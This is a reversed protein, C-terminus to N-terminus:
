ANSGGQSKTKYLGVNTGNGRMRIELLDMKGEESLVKILLPTCFGGQCRGMGTRVRRKLGDLTYNALPRNLAMKIEGLSVEECRCIIKGFDPNEKILQDREKPTAKALRPIRKRYPNFDKNREIKISKGLEEVTIKAVEQAIAPAATLGPSQIGAVHFLNSVKPSLEVIFDEEYTPARLGSFYAIVDSEKIKPIVQKHKSLLNQISTKPTGLDDKDWVEIADPGILLNGDVTSIIAGGKTRSHRQSVKPFKSVITRVLNKVKSDLILDTGKRPHISFYKDDAFSAINDAYVGAANIVFKPRILGRNTKVGMIQQDKMEFGLCMTELSIRAGNMIANESFAIVAQYPSIIGANKLLIAGKAWSATEPERHIIEKKSIRKVGDIGLIRAKYNLYYSFIRDRKSSYIIYQGCRIFDFDLEESLQDYLKNGLLCYKAKLSDPKLDIGPHIMGDNAGSAGLAVDAEKEILLLNLSYRSLERLISAGVIGGGIVLVDVEQNDLSLDQLAPLKMPKSEQNRLRIENVVRRQKKPDVFLYGVKVIDQWSDMEGKLIISRNTRCVSIGYKKIVENVLKTNKM